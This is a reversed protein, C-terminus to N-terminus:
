RWANRYSVTLSGTPSAAGIFVVDDFFLTQGTPTAGLTPGYRAFAAGVPASATVTRQEWTAAVAATLASASTSLFVASADYWDIACGVSAYGPTSRVWVNLSCSQGALVPSEKRAIATAPSAVVTLLASFTGTNAQASSIAVTAGTPTWNNVDGDEFDDTVTLVATGSAGGFRIFASGPNFLFWDARTMFGRVNTAGNLVATRNVLDLVVTDGVALDMDLALVKSDTDNIIVPDSVPGTITLLAPAPRNGGVVIFSGSPPVIAGFSLPFGFSFGFGTTALGGFTIVISQLLNDYIRPDEAYALFQVTSMGIRRAVEWNYRVGRPKVFMVREAVGPAKLVLPIPETRPAFNAKLDDFYDEANNVDCYASGEISIDRGMEFEADIFGGDQGEHDRITERFPASDMGVVTTVDVFPLGTSDNNIVPGGDLQFTYDSLPM